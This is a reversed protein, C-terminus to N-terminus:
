LGHDQRLNDPIRAPKQQILEITRRTKWTRVAAKWDKMKTKGICWNRAAYYDCFNAGDLVFDITRAYDTVEAPLPPKFARNRENVKRSLDDVVEILYVMADVYDQKAAFQKGEKIRKCASIGPHERTEM